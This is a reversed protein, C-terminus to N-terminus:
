YITYLKSPLSIFDICKHKHLIPVYSADFGGSAYLHIQMYAWKLTDTMQLTLARQGCIIFTPFTM